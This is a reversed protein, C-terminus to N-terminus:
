RARYENRSKMLQDIDSRRKVEFCAANIEDAGLM